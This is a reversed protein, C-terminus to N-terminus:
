QALGTIPKSNESLAVDVGRVIVWLRWTLLLQAAQVEAIQVEAQALERAANMVDLWTKRGALFQRGWADWISESSALSALLFIVRRQGSEAQWYDSMIQEALGVRTSEVDALAAEYRAKAGDVNSFGSLGAGLRTTLGLFIRNQSGADRYSFNGYQRELRVYVEPSMDAKREAIEAEHIRAQATLRMVEPNGAKAQEVLIQPSDRIAMPEAFAELLETAKLPHGLLQSLRALSTVQQVKVVSLEAATQQERGELMTLDSAASIGERIRRVIQERLRVHVDLSKQLAISKIYAGYWESYIQVVRLTLDQRVGDLVARSVLVGAEAKDVGATLRGGTWLPQQLRLTTVSRDGNRYSVDRASAGAMETSVSPTPFYQWRAAEVSKESVQRMSRQAQLSPHIELVENVLAPLAQAQAGSFSALYFVLAIVHSTSIALAGFRRAKM